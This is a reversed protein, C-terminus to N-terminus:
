FMYNKDHYQIVGTCDNMWIEVSCPAYHEFENIQCLNLGHSKTMFLGQALERIKEEDGEKLAQLLEDM